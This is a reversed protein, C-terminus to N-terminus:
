GVRRLLMIHLHRRRIITLTQHFRLPNNPVVPSRRRAKPATRTRLPSIGYDSRLMYRRRTGHSGARWSGHPRRFASTVNRISVAAAVNAYESNLIDSSVPTAGLFSFRGLFSRSGAGECSFPCSLLSTRASPDTSQCVRSLPRNAIM